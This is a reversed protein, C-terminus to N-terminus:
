STHQPTNGDEFKNKLITCYKYKEYVLFPYLKKCNLAIMPWLVTDSIKKNWAAFFRVCDQIIIFTEKSVKKRNLLKLLHPYDGEPVRFNEDFDDMLNNIDCEFLYTLSQQRKLFDAYNQESKINFLDGVWIKKGEAFNAVLFTLPDEHKSLKHFMYKDRRTDFTSESVRTKGNYKFYDYDTTFHMSIASYMKYAEFPTM